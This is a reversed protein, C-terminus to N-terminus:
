KLPSIAPDDDFLHMNREIEERPLFPAMDELPRSEMSGDPRRFSSAKPSIEQSAAINVECIAPGDDALVTALSGKLESNDRICYYPLGYAHALMKFDPNSLGSAFDSGVRRGEFLNDQTARISAFGANNFIFIKIPAQHHAITMLEQINWQVSGDGTICVTRRMGNGICAGFALPLDWGMSGWASTMTRQGSKVRFGQYYSVTDLGAGGIVVDDSRLLGSITDAFVYPNVHARDTFFEPVIIPYRRKWDACAEIWRTWDPLDLSVTQLIFEEIFERVDCHVALDPKLVQDLLQHEDIDVIIKVAKPAFGKYNFGVKQCNLGAALSILCDSTQVAFNARRQGATGFLGANMPHDEAILDKASFPVVVPIRLRDVLQMFSEHCSSLRIGNGAVLLPRRSSRLVAIVDRVLHKVDAIHPAPPTFSDLAADGLESGQVDLPLELWVPGPRGTCAHHYAAELERRIMRPDLIRAAYKTVPRVMDLTNAEQPGLHRLKSYDAILDRRVQGAIVIVPVSDAWAGPLASLANAAGPGVTVLAVGPRGTVRAYGEAAIVCAQEHFNCHYKVKPNRALADLVHMIGGGSVLFLDNLGKEAFFQIVYDSVKM